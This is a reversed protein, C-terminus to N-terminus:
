QTQAAALWLKLGPQLVQRFSTDFSNGRWTLIQRIRWARFSPPIANLERQLNRRKKQAISVISDFDNYTAPAGSVKFQLLGQNAGIYQGVAHRVDYSPDASLRRIDDESGFIAFVSAARERERAGGRLFPRVRDLDARAPHVSFVLEPWDLLDQDNIRARISEFAAGRDGAALASYAARRLQLNGSNLLVSAPQFPRRSRVLSELANAKMTNDPNSRAIAELFTFAVSDARAELLPVIATGVGPNVSPPVKLSVPTGKIAIELIGQRDVAVNVHENHTCASSLLLLEADHQAASGSSERFRRNAIEVPCTTASEFFGRRVLDREERASSASITEHFLEAYKALDGLEYEPWFRLMAALGYHSIRCGARIATDTLQPYVGNFGASNSAAEYYADGGAPCPFPIENILARQDFQEFDSLATSLSSFAEQPAIRLIGRVSSTRIEPRSDNLMNRLRPLDATTAVDALLLRAFISSEPSLDNRDLIQLLRERAESTKGTRQLESLIAVDNFQLDLLPEIPRDLPAIIAGGRKLPSEGRFATASMPQEWVLTPFGPGGWGPYGRFIRVTDADATAYLHKDLWSLYTFASFVTAVLGGIVLRRIVRRHLSRSVRDKDVTLGALALRRHFFLVPDRSFSGAVIPQQGPVDPHFAKLDENSHFDIGDVLDTLSIEGPRTGVPITGRVIAILYKSFLTGEGNGVEWSPQDERSAALLVRFDGGQTRRFFTPANEAFGASVCCDLILLVGRSACASLAEDLELSSISTGQLNNKAANAGCLYIGTKDRFAHGSFYVILLSDDSCRKGAIKLAALIEASTVSGALVRVQDTPIACGDPDVVASGFARAEREAARLPEIAPDDFTGVGISLVHTSAGFETARIREM